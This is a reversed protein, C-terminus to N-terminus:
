RQAAITHAVSEGEREMWAVLESVPVLIRRGRRVVRLEGLVQEDLFTRSCGLAAAAEDPGVALRGPLSAVDLLRLDSASPKPPTV